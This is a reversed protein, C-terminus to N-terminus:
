AKKCVACKQEEWLEIFKQRPTPLCYVGAKVYMRCIRSSLGKIRLDLKKSIEKNGYGKTILEAIETERPSLKM